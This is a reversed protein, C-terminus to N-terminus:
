NAYIRYNILIKWNTQLPISNFTYYTILKIRQAQDDTLNTFADSNIITLFEDVAYLYTGNQNYHAEVAINTDKGLETQYTSFDLNPIAIASVDSKVIDLVEVFKAIRSNGVDIIGTDTLVTIIDDVIGPLANIEETTRNNDFIIRIFNKIFTNYCTVVTSRTGPKTDFAVLGLENILATQTSGDHAFYSICDGADTDISMEIQAYTEIRNSKAANQANPGLDNQTIPDVYDWRQGDRWWGHYIHPTSDFKKIYFSKSFSSSGVRMNGLYQGSISPDLNTQTQQFPIPNRLKIFSYDTNKTTIADEGAGGTGVMFGQVFHNSAINETMSTYNNPDVGIQLTGSSNLDPIILNTDQDLKEYGDNHNADLHLGFMKMLVYQFGSIPIINDDEYWLSKEGTEKNQRFVQVHGRLGHKEHNEHFSLNENIDMNMFLIM